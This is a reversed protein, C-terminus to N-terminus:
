FWKTKVSNIDAWWLKPNAFIRSWFRRQSINELDDNAAHSFWWVIKAQCKCFHRTTYFKSSKAPSKGPHIQQARKGVFIFFGAVLDAFFTLSKFLFTRGLVSGLSSVTCASRAHLVHTPCDM